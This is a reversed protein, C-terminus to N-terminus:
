SYVRLMNGSLSTKYVTLATLAPGRTVAGNTAFTSGHAPCIFQNIGIAYQVPTGQHTCAASVAVFSGGALRAVIVGSNILFGGDQALASNASQTLDLTFNVNAPAM